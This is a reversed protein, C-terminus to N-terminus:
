PRMNDQQLNLLKRKTYEDINTPAIKFYSESFGFCEEDDVNEGANLIDGSTNIHECKNCITTRPCLITKVDHIFESLLMVWSSNLVWTILDTHIM